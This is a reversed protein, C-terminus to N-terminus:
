HDINVKRCEKFHEIMRRVDMQKVEEPVPIGAAESVQVAKRYDLIDGVSRSFEFMRDIYSHIPPTQLRTQGLHVNLALLLFALVLGPRNEHEAFTVCTWIGREASRVAHSDVLFNGLNVKGDKAVLDSKTLVKGDLFCVVNPLYEHPSTSYHELLDDKDFDGSDVFLMFSFHPNQYPVTIGTSLGKGLVIGSGLYNAPTPVRTMTTLIKRNTETFVQVYRSSRQYSTKIEGILYVAEYPVYNTGDDGEFLIPTTENDSVIVDIQPSTALGTDVIHGHSVHYQPPLRRTLFERVATEVPVGSAKLDGAGHHIACRDRADLLRRADACYAKDLSFPRMDGGDRIGVM